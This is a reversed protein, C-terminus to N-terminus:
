EPMVFFMYRSGKRTYVDAYSDSLDDKKYGKICAQVDEATYGGGYDGVCRREETDWKDIKYTM